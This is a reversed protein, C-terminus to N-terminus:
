RSAEMRYLQHSEIRGVKIAVGAADAAEAAIDATSAWWWGDMRRQAQVAGEVRFAALPMLGNSWALLVRSTDHLALVSQSGCLAMCEAAGRREGYRSMMHALLESDCQGHLQIGLIRAKRRHQPIVGNHVLAWDGVTHPHNNGNSAPAGHTAFRTHGIAAVLRREGLGRWAPSEFLEHAPGPQRAWLLDGNASLAAFGGADVGRQESARALAEMLRMALRQQARTWREGAAFGFVGCM